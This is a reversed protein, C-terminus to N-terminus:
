RWISDLTKVTIEANPCTVTLANLNKDLVGGFVANVLGGDIIWEFSITDTILRLDVDGGTVSLPVEREDFLMKNERPKFEFTHGFLTVTFDDSDKPIKITIDHAATHSLPVAGDGRYTATSKVLTDFERAPVGKLYWDGKVQALSMEMPVGMQCCFVTGATNITNWAIKVRRDPIDSYTQAAYSNRGYHFKRGEVEFVLQRTEKDFNGIYYIDDAGTFVWKRVGDKELPYIDPCEGMDPTEIDQVPTWDLLNESEFLRYTTGRMFLAMIYVGLEECWVVKPDRNGRVYFPVVPNKDYKVITKGNDKSYALCQTYDVGKSLTSENGAATYYFLLTKGDESLGTANKKDVFGSGSYMTGMKDPYLAIDGEKWHILDTSTAHGWHMNGWCPAVPNHQFFLHYVGDQYVLGNPDNLWGYAATFHVTPRLYSDYVGTMPRKDTQDLVLCDLAPESSLTVETGIFREVDLYMQFAPTFADYHADFDFVLTGDPATLRINKRTMKPNVPVILYKSTIEM